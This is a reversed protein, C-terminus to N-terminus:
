PRSGNAPAPKLPQGNWKVILVDLEREAPVLELSLGGRVAKAIAAFSGDAPLALQYDFVGKIGTEDLVPRGLRGALCPTLAESISMNQVIRAQGGTGGGCRKTSGATPPRLADSKGNPAQLLYVSMKQRARSVTLGLQQNLAQQASAQLEQFSAEKKSTQVHVDFHGQPLAGDAITRQESSGYIMAALSLATAGEIDWGNNDINWSGTTKASPSISVAPAAQADPGGQPPRSAEIKPLEAEAVDAVSLDGYVVRYLAAGKPKYWCVPASADGLKVGDGVYRFTGGNLQLFVTLRGVRTGIEEQGAAITRAIEDDSLGAAPLRNKELNRLIKPTVNPAVPFTNDNNEALFRLGAVLDDETLNGLPIDLAPMERYGEPAALSFLSADLPPDIAIDTIRVHGQGPMDMEVLLVTKGKASDVWIDTVVGENNVRFGVAGTEDIVEQGIPAADKQVLAKIVEAFNQTKKLLEPPLQGLNMMSAAKEAPNLNLGKGAQFDYINIMAGPMGAVTIEQRMLYPLSYSARIDVEMPRGEAAPYTMHVRCTMTQMQQILDRVQAFAVTHSHVLLTYAGIGLGSVLLIAAAIRAISKMLYRRRQVIIRQIDAEFPKGAAVTAALVEPPPGAPVPIDRVAKAALHIKKSEFKSM